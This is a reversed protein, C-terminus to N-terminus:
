MCVKHYPMEEPVPMHEDYFPPREFPREREYGREREYYREREDMPPRPFRGGRYMMGYQRRTFLSMFIKFMNKKYLQYGVPVQLVM